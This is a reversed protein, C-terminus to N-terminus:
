HAGTSKRQLADSARPGASADLCICAECVQQMSLRPDITIGVARQAELNGMLNSMVLSARRIKGSGGVPPAAAGLPTSPREGLLPGSAAAPLMVSARRARPVAAGGGGSSSPPGGPPPTPMMLMAAGSPATALQQQGPPADFPTPLAGPDTRSQSQAEQGAQSLMLPRAFRGSASSPPAAGSESMTAAVGGGGLVLVRSPPHPLQTLPASGAAKADRDDETGDDFEVGELDDDEAEEDLNLSELARAAQLLADESPQQQSLSSPAKDRSHTGHPIAASDHGGGVSRVRLRSGPTSQPPPQPVAGSSTGGSAATAPAPGGGSSSAGRAAAAAPAPAPSAAAAAAAAAAGSSSAGRSASLAHQFSSALVAGLNNSATRQPVPAVPPPGVAVSASTALPAGARASPPAQQQATTESKSRQKGDSANVSPRGSGHEQLEEDGADGADDVIWAIGHSSTSSIRSLTVDGMPSVRTVSAARPLPVSHAPAPPTAQDGSTATFSRGSASAPGVPPKGEAAAGLALGPASGSTFSRSSAAAAPPPPPSPAAAAVAAVAAATLHLQGSSPSGALAVTSSRPGLSQARITPVLANSGGGQSAKSRLQVPDFRPSSTSAPPAAAGTPTTNGSGGGGVGSGGAVVLAAPLGRAAAGSTSGGSRSPSRMPAEGSSAAGKALSGRHPEDDDDSDEFGFRVRDAAHQLAREGDPGRLASRPRTATGAAGAVALQPPAAQQQQQAAFPHPAAAGEAAGSSSLAASSRSSALAVAGRPSSVAAAGQPTFRTSPSSPAAVATCSPGQAGPSTIASSTNSLDTTTPTGPSSPPGQPSLPSAPARRVSMPVYVAPITGSAVDVSQALAKPNALAQQTAEQQAQLTPLLVAQAHAGLRAGPTGGLAHPCKCSLLHARKLIAQVTCARLRQVAAM